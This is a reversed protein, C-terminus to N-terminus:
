RELQRRVGAPVGVPHVCQGDRLDEGVHAPKTVDLPVDDVLRQHATVLRMAMTSEGRRPTNRRQLLDPDPRATVERLLDLLKRDAVGVDLCGVHCGGASGAHKTRAALISTSWGCGVLEGQIM